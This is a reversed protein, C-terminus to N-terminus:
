LLYRGTVVGWYTNNFSVDTDRKIIKSDAKPAMVNDLLTQLEAALRAMQADDLRPYELALKHALAVILLEVYASPVRLDTDLDFEIGENYDLRLKSLNGIAYTKTEILWEGESLQVYTWALENRVYKDFEQRPVFSLKLCGAEINNATDVMLTNLKAVNSIHMHYCHSYKKMSQWRANFEDPHFSTYGYHVEESDNVAIFKYAVDEHQGDTVMAWVDNEIDEPGPDYAELAEVSGFYKNNDGKLTDTEDYVHIFRESPLALQRQTWALYNDNNYQSVVGRLLRFATELLYGGPAQRRTALNVRCLAENLLDRIIM